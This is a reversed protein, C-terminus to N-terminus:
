KLKLGLRNFTLEIPLKKDLAKPAKKPGPKPSYPTAPKSPKTGPDTTPKTTPKSPAVETGQEKVLKILDKKSMKPTIHKEVLRLINKEIVSEFNVTPTFRNVNKKTLGAITSALKQNYDGFTFDEKYESKSLSKEPHVKEPMKKYEKETTSKSFEKAMKCWKKEDKTKGEGCRAWFLGQQAKSEFKEQIRRSETQGVMKRDDDSDDDMGDPAEDSADHPGEQGTYSQEADKELPTIDDSDSDEKTLWKLQEELEEEDDETIAGSPSTTMTIKKSSPDVHIGKQALKQQDTVNSPDFTINTVQTKTEEKTEKKKSEILRVHLASIQSENMSLITSPQFGSGVLEFIKKEIKM